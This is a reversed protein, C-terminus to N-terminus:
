GAKAQDGAAHPLFPLELLKPYAGPDTHEAPTWRVEVDPARNKRHLPIANVRKDM